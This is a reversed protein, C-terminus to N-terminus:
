STDQIYKSMIKNDSHLLSYIKGNVCLVNSEMILHLYTNLAVKSPPLFKKHLLKFRLTRM